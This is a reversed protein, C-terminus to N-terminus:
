TILGVGKWMAYTSYGRNAKEWLDNKLANEAYDVLRQYNEHAKLQDGELGKMDLKAKVYSNPKGRELWVALKM